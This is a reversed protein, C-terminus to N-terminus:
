EESNLTIGFQEFFLKDGEKIDLLRGLALSIKEYAIKINEPTPEQKMLICSAYCIDDITISTM